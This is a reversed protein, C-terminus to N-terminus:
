HVPDLGREDLVQNLLGLSYIGSLDPAQDLYGARFAAEASAALSDSIPDYTVQM